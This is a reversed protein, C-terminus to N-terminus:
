RKLAASSLELTGLAVDSVSVSDSDSLLLVFSDVDGSIVEGHHFRM